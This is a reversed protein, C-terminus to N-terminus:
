SERDTASLLAGNQEADDTLATSHYPIRACCCEGAVNAARVHVVERCTSGALYSTGTADRCFKAAAFICKNTVRRISAVDSVKVRCCRELEPDEAVHFSLPHLLERVRMFM